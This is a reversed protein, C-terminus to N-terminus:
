EASEQLYRSEGIDIPKAPMVRVTRCVEKEDIGEFCATVEMRESTEHVTVSTLTRDDQWCGGDAYVGSLLPRGNRSLSFLLNPDAM